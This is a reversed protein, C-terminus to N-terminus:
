RGFHIRVGVTPALALELRPLASSRVAFTMAEAPL